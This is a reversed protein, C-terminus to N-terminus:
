SSVESVLQTIVGAVNGQLIKASTDNGSDYGFFRMIETAPPTAAGM